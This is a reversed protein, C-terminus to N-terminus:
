DPILPRYFLLMPTELNSFSSHKYLQINYQVINDNIWLLPFLNKKLINYNDPNIM